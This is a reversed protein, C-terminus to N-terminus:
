KWDIKGISGDGTIQQADGSEANLLWLNGQYIFALWLPHNSAPEPGWVVQQPEMGPSGPPPFVTRRNSGDQDMLLLRYRSNESQEPFIAQLAALMFRDANLYPSAAPYAFMGSHPILNVVQSSELIIASVDFLPSTEDVSLGNNAAHTITYLLGGDESWAVSPVWAWDSRTQYPIIELVPQLQGSDFDVLGISDPRTYAMQTGDHSWVFSTGWWGYIGGSNAGLVEKKSIVGGNQNLTLLHLDNNAQWGPATPRPEVTSYAITLASTEPQWGAYHAVNNIGLAVPRPTQQRADVVWLTNTDGDPETASKRTYLLWNGDPSLTFVRGDLDGTTVLPRRDGTTTQMIWANGSTIYVLTGPIPVAMFPAQVGVMVIEPRADESIATKFISRSILIENEYLIRHTIQQIGNAGPQILLTQGQPLSENRVTLREFPIISEETEFEERVRTVQISDDDKLLTYTPPNVRDLNGLTIGAQNIAYQVTSGGPVQIINEKGDAILSVSIQDNAPASVCGGGLIVGIGVLLLFRTFHSSGLIRTINPQM